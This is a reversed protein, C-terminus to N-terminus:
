MKTLSFRRGNRIPEDSSRRGRRSRIMDVVDGRLMFMETDESAAM